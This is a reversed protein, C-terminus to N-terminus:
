QLLAACAYLDDHALMGRLEHPREGEAREGIFRDRHSQEVIRGIGDMVNRESLLGVQHDHRGCRGVDDGLHGVADGVVENGGRQEGRRSGNHDRRSHVIAHPLRRRRLGVHDRQAVAADM